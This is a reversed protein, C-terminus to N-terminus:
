HFTQEFREGIKLIPHTKKGEKSLKSLEEYIRSVLGKESIHNVFINEWNMAQRKMIKVTVKM